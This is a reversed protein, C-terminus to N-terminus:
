HNCNTDIQKSTWRRRVNKKCVLINFKKAFELPQLSMAWPGKNVDEKALDLKAIPTIQPWDSIEQRRLSFMDYTKKYHLIPSYFYLYLALVCFILIIPFRLYEGLILCVSYVEKLSIGEEASNKANQIFDMATHLGM